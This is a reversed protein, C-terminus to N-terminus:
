RSRRSGASHRGPRISTQTSNLFAELHCASASKRLKKGDDSVSRAAGVRSPSRSPSSIGIGGEGADLVSLESKESARDPMEEADLPEPVGEGEVGDDAEAELAPLLRLSLTLRGDPAPAM